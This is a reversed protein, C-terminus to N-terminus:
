YLLFSIGLNIFSLICYIWQYTQFIKFSILNIKLIM